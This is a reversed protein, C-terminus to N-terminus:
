YSQSKDKSTDPKKMNDKKGKKMKNSKKDKSMSDKGMNDQKMQDQSQSQDQPQQMQSAAFSPATSAMFCLALGTIVFKRMGEGKRTEITTACPGSRVVHELEILSTTFPQWMALFRVPNVEASVEGWKQFAAGKVVSLCGSEDVAVEHPELNV